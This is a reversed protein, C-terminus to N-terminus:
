YQGIPKCNNKIIVKRENYYISHPPIDCTVLSGAGIVSGEGIDVGGLVIAYAGIVVNKHIVPAELSSGSKQGLCVHHEIHVNDEIIANPHIVVGLARHNFVVNKGLKLCKPINCGFLISFIGNFIRSRRSLKFLFSFM